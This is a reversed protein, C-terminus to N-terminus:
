SVCRKGKLDPVLSVFCKYRAGGWGIGERVPVPPAVEECDDAAGLTKEYRLAVDTTVSSLRPLNIRPHQHPVAGPEDHRPYSNCRTM